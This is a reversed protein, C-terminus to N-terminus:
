IKLVRRANLHTVKDFVERSIKGEALAEELFTKLIVLVSDQHAVQNVDTGFLLRDQFETLFGYGFEPDRSVANCGSGASLDGYVNPYQCMMAPIRGGPVVAGKPYGGWTDDDVDASMHSWFAQSHCMFVLDPHKQVQEEFRPLGLEDILGYTNGDRTAVHFLVPLGCAEAHTFLNDVRPDDFSLNATIEGVGKFGLAKYHNLLASFDRGADNVALRPDVNCFPILRDPHREAAELIEYNSQVVDGGEPSVMPLMVGQQIGVEDYMDILHEATMFTAPMSDGRSRPTTSIHTHDDIFFM